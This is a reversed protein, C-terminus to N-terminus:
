KLVWLNDQPNKAKEVFKVEETKVCSKCILCFLQQM